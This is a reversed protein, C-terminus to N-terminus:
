LLGEERLQGVIALAARSRDMTYLHIGPVGQALLERCQRIALDIGFQELAEQDDPPLAALVNKIEETITAGCLKALMNMMKVSYIPM